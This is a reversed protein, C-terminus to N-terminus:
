GRVKKSFSSLLMFFGVNIEIIAKRANTGVLARPPCFASEAYFWLEVACFFGVLGALIEPLTPLSPLVKVASLSLLIQLTLLGSAKLPM